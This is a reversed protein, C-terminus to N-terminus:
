IEGTREEEGHYQRSTQGRDRARVHRRLLGRLEDHVRRHGQQVGGRQKRHEQTAMRHKTINNKLINMSLFLLYRRNQQSTKFTKSLALKDGLPTFRLM